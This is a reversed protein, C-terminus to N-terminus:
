SWSVNEVKFFNICKEVFPNKWNKWSDQTLSLGNFILKKEENESSYKEDKSFCFYKIHTDYVNKNSNLVACFLLNVNLVEFAYKIIYYELLIGYGSSLYQKDLYYGWECKSKEISTFDVVGVPKEDLYALFYRCDNRGALKKVWNIHSELPIFDQNYMKSRIEIKNRMEWVLKIEEESLTTFNKFIIKM